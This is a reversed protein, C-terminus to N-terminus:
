FDGCHKSVTQLSEGPTLSRRLITCANASKVIKSGAVAAIKGMVKPRIPPFPTESGMPNRVTGADKATGALKQQHRSIETM